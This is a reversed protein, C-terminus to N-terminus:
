SDEKVIRLLEPSIHFPKGGDWDCKVKKRTFGIVTLMNGALYGPLNDVKLSYQNGDAIVKDGIKFDELKNAERKKAQFDPFDAQEPTKEKEKYKSHGSCGTIDPAIEQLQCCGNYQCMYCNM